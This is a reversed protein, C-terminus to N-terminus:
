KLAERLKQYAANAEAAQASVRALAEETVRLKDAIADVTQVQSAYLAELASVRQETSLGPPLPPPEVVPGSEAYTCNVFNAPWQGALAQSKSLSPLPSGAKPSFLNNTNGGWFRCNEFRVKAPYSSIPRSDGGDTHMLWSSSTGTRVISANRVTIDAPYEYGGGWAAAAGPAEVTLGDITVTGAAVVIHELGCNTIKADNVAATAAVGTAEGGTSHCWIKLGNRVAGEIEINSVTLPASNKVDCGDGPVGHIQVDEITIPGQGDEVALGDCATNSESGLPGHITVRRIETEGIAGPGLDILTQPRATATITCDEIVIGDVRQGKLASLKVAAMRADNFRINKLTVGNCSYFTYVGWGARDITGNRVTIGGAQVNFLRYGMPKALDPPPPSVTHGGLDVTVGAPLNVDAPLTLDAAVTVTDGPKATKATALFAAPTDVTFLAAWAGASLVLAYVQLSLAFFFRRKM